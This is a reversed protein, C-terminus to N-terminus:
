EKRIILRNGKDYSFYSWTWNVFVVLKNRFGALSILHILMWIIWAPFGKLHQKGLDAVAKNRGITAMSGKDDYVFPIMPKKQAKLQLNRVLHRAQQIAVQAVMPHGGPSSETQMCAVDGIAWIHDAGPVQNYANVLIRGGPGRSEEPLGHPANGQVGASWILTRSVLKRGNSMWVTNGDYEEVRTNLWVEVGLKELGDLAAKSSESSMGSLLRDAGEILHIKMKRLDLEPYDIPLIHQKLEALAGALEVGTPGGGALVFSMLANQAETDTTLLAAEFKQLLNSRLNLADAISKLGVSFQEPGKMNWFHTKSGTALILEDFYLEGIDTLISQTETHISLIKAMRFHFDPADQIVKRIPFAISDAELGATAVQYLLPQFTHYNHTDLLIVQVPAQKLQQALTIGAFGGGVIVIRPLRSEPINLSGAQKELEPIM